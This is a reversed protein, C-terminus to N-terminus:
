SAGGAEERRGLYGSEMGMLTRIGLAISGLGLGITIGRFVSTTVVDSLWDGMLPFGSWVHATYPTNRLLLLAGAIVFIATGKNRARFSRYAGSAIFFALSAYIAGSLPTFTANFVWTYEPSQGIPAKFLGLVIFLFLVFLAWISFCWQRPTRKRIHDLNYLTLSIIGLGVAFAAIIIGFTMLMTEMLGGVPTPIFWQFTLIVGVLFTLFL